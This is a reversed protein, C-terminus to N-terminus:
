NHQQLIYVLKFSYTLILTLSYQYVKSEQKVTLTVLSIDSVNKGGLLGAKIHQIQIYIHTIPKM